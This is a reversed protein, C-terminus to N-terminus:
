KMKSEPKKDDRLHKIIEYTIFLNTSLFLLSAMWVYFLVDYKRFEYLYAFFL